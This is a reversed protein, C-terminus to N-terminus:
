TNLCIASPNESNERESVGVKEPLKWIRPWREPTSTPATMSEIEGVYITFAELYASVYAHICLLRQIPHLRRDIQCWERLGNRRSKGHVRM